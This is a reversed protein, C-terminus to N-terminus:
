REPRAPITWLYLDSGDSGRTVKDPRWSGIPFRRSVVRSGPALERRLKPELKANVEASLSLTVITAGSIEATFLDGEIFTVTGALQADGAVARAIAVLRPDIEVGV